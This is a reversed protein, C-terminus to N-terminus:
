SHKRLIRELISALRTIDTESLGANLSFRLRETGAAVTPRRIPLVDFGEEHLAASLSIAKEASGTIFPIIQSRSPCAKGGLREIEKAFKCSIEALHLRETEMREIKEIMLLSWAQQMPPLATSFIFSRATNILYEKIIPDAVVFAGASAAAKGLTGVLIDIESLMGTAEGLGLGRRGFTGFGHAEDVYLLTGPFEKKIEALEQLPALDGDMSYVSEVAIVRLRKGEAHRELTKRLSKMDNHAFRRFDGGGLRMGDIASAHILKDSVILTDPLAMLAQMIGTNAHYGSNFLLAPRGYLEELKRELLLHYKQSRQLLRSASATPMADSFRELFEERFEGCRAGLGLYDNSLLDTMGASKEEPIRRLRSEERIRALADEIQEIRM